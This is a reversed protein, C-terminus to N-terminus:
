AFLRLAFSSKTLEITASYSMMRQRLQDREGGFNFVENFATTEIPRHLVLESGYEYSDLRSFENALTSGSLVSGQKPRISYLGISRNM